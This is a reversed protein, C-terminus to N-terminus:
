SFHRSNIRNFAFGSSIIVSVASSSSSFSFSNSEFTTVSSLFSVNGSGDSDLSDSFTASETSFISSIFDNSFIVSLTTTSFSFCGSFDDFTKSSGFIISFTAVFISSVTESTTEGDDGAGGTDVNVFSSSFDVFVTSTSSNFGIKVM